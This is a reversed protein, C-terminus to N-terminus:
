AAFRTLSSPTTPTALGFAVPWFTATFPSRSTSSAPKSLDRGDAMHRHENVRKIVEQGLVDVRALCHATKRNEACLFIKKGGAAAGKQLHYAYGEEDVFIEKLRESEM